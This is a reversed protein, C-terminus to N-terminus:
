QLCLSAPCLLPSFAVAAALGIGHCSDVVRTVGRGGEAAELLLGVAWHACGQGALGSCGQSGCLAGLQLFAKTHRPLYM